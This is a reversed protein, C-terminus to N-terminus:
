FQGLVDVLRTNWSLDGDDVLAAELMTSIPKTISGIIFLTDPTGPRTDGREKVGVGRLYAGEGGQIVAVAAGPVGYRTIADSLYGEFASRRDGPLQPAAVGSLDVSQKGRPAPANTM